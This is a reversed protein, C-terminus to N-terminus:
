YAPLIKAEKIENYPIFVVHDKDTDPNKKKKGKKEIEKEINIGKDSVEVLKGKLKTDDLFLILILRGMNNQYQRLLRLPTGVGVSSVELEFDEEDRNLVSEIHKSLAACDAIHVGQDGDIAVTIKNRVSVRLEVLFKDSGELFAEISESLRTKDIM